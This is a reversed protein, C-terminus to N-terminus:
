SSPALTRDYHGDGCWRRDNENETPHLALEAEGVFREQLDSAAGGVPTAVSM